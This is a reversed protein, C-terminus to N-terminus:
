IGTTKLEPDRNINIFLIIGGITGIVAVWLPLFLILNSSATFTQLTASLIGSELLKEYENAIYLSGVIAMLTILWHVVWVVPHRRILYSEIIIGFALSFLLVFSLVRLGGLAANIPVFTKTAADAIDIGEVAPVDLLAQTVSDFMFLWAALFLVVVITSVSWMLVALMNGKKNM